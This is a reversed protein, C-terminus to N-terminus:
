LTKLLFMKGNGTRVYDILPFIFVAMHLVLAPYALDSLTRRLLLAREHYFDALQRFVVDLRGSQEGAQVLAIDFPPMWHGLGQVAESVTTGQKLQSIMKQLPERFSRAPPNRELTELTNILPLGASLLQGFQQYFHARLAFQRPTFILPM